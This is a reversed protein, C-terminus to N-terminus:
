ANGGIHDSLARVVSGGALAAVVVSARADTTTTKYTGTARGSNGVVTKNRHIRTNVLGGTACRVTAVEAAIVPSGQSTVACRSVNGTSRLATDWDAPSGVVVVVRRRAVGRGLVLVGVQGAVSLLAENLRAKRPLRIVRLWLEDL